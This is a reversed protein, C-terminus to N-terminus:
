LSFVSPKRGQSVISNDEEILRNLNNELDDMQSLETDIDNDSPKIMDYFLLYATAEENEGGFFQLVTEETIAEVIEDDFLLWGFQESKCISIYHGHYPGRGIHIVLSSLEYEMEILNEDDDRLKINLSLPYKIKTLLKVNAQKTESYKFRKLQLLLTPPLKKFHVIREADQLSDCKNCCFQNDGTLVEREIYDGLIDQISEPGQLDDNIEITIDIFKEDHQNSNNCNLCNSHCTVLGQFQHMIFHADLKSITNKNMNLIEEHLTNLLYNLFEHADQQSKSKFMTNKKRLLYLFEIPSVIGTLREHENISEFIDKLASHLNKERTDDLFHDINLIPGAVLAIKRKEEATYQEEFENCTVTDVLENSHCDNEERLEDKSTENTKNTSIFKDLTVSDILDARGVITCRSQQHLAEVSQDFYSIVKYALELKDGNQVQGKYNKNSLSNNTNSRDNKISYSHIRKSNNNNTIINDSINLRSPKKKTKNISSDSSDTKPIKSVFSDHNFFREVYPECKFKPKRYRDACIPFKLINTRFENSHYLCQLISNVYCTNAFNEFGFVKNSGDGFPLYKHKYNEKGKWKRRSPKTTYFKSTLENPLWISLSRVNLYGFDISRRAKSDNESPVLSNAPKPNKNICEVEPERDNTSVDNTGNKAFLRKLM